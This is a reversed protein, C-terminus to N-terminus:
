MSDSWKSYKRSSKIQQLKGKGNENKFLTACTHISKKWEQKNTTNEKANKSCFRCYNKFHCIVKFVVFVKLVVVGFVAYLSVYSLVIM